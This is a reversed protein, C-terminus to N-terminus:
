LGLGDLSILNLIVNVSDQGYSELKVYGMMSKDNGPKLAKIKDYDLINLIYGVPTCTILTQINNDADFHSYNALLMSKQDKYVVDISRFTMIPKDVNLINVFAHIENYPNITICDIVANYAGDSEIMLNDNDSFM